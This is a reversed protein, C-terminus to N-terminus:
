KIYSIHDRIFNMVIGSFTIVLENLSNLFDNSLAFVHKGGFLRNVDAFPLHLILLQKSFPRLHGPGFFVPSIHKKQKSRGKNHISTVKINTMQQIDSYIHLEM